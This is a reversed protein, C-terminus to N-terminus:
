GNNPKRYRNTSNPIAKEAKFGRIDDVHDRCEATMVNKIPELFAKLVDKAFACGAILGARSRMVQSIAGHVRIRREGQYFDMVLSAITPNCGSQVM